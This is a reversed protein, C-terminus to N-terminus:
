ILWAPNIEQMAKKIPYVRGKGGKPSVFM